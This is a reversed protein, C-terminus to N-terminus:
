KQAGKPHFEWLGQWEPYDLQAGADYFGQFNWGYWQRGFYGVAWQGDFKAMYLQQPRIDPHECGDRKSLDIAPGINPTPPTRM